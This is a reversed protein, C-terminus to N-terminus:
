CSGRDKASLPIGVASVIGEREVFPGHMLPDDMVNESVYLDDRSLIKYVVSQKSLERLEKSRVGVTTPPFDFRENNQDYPHLTVIDCDLVEQM